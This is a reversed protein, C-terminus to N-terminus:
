SLKRDLPVRLRAHSKGGFRAASFDVGSSSRESLPGIASSGFDFQSCHMNRSQLMAEWIQAHQVIPIARKELLVETVPQMVGCTVPDLYDIADPQIEEILQNIREQLLRIAEPCFSNSPAQMTVQNM